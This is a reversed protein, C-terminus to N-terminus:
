WLTAYQKGGQVATSAMGASQLLIDEEPNGLPAKPVLLSVKIHKLFFTWLILVGEPVGPSITLFMSVPHTSASPSHDTDSVLYPVSLYVPQIRAEYFGLVSEDGMPRHNSNSKRFHPLTAIM